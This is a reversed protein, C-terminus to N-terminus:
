LDRTTRTLSTTWIVGGDDVGSRTQRPIEGMRTESVDDHDEVTGGEEATTAQRRQRTIM